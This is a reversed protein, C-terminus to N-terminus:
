NRENEIDAFRQADEETKADYCIYGTTAKWPHSKELPEGAKKRVVHYYEGEVM